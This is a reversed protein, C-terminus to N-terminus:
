ARLSNFFARSSSGLNESASSAFAVKSLILDPEYSLVQFYNIEKNSAKLPYSSFRGSLPGVADQPDVGPRLRVM